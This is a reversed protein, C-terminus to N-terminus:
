PHAPLTRPHRAHTDRSATWVQGRGANGTTSLIGVAHQKAMGEKGRVFAEVRAQERTTDGHVEMCTPTVGQPVSTGRQTSTLGPQVHPHTPAHAPTLTM